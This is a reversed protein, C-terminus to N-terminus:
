KLKVKGEIVKDFLNYGAAIADLIQQDATNAAVLDYLIVKDFESGQRHM